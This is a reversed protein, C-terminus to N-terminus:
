SQRGGARLTEQIAKAVDVGPTPGSVNVVSVTAPTSRGEVARVIVDGTHAIVVALFFVAGLAFIYPDPALAGVVLNAISVVAVWLRVVRIAAKM